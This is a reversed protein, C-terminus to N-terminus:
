KEKEEDYGMPVSDAPQEPAKGEPADGQSAGPETDAAPKSPGKPGFMNTEPTEVRLDVEDAPEIEQPVPGFPYPKQTECLAIFRLMRYIYVTLRHNLSKIAGNPQTLIILVIGQLLTLVLFAFAVMGTLIAYLAAFCFYIGIKKRALIFNLCANLVAFLVAKVQDM